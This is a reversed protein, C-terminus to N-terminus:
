MGNEKGHENEEKMKQKARFFTVRAWNPTKGLVEAIEIFSLSGMTRLYVVERSPEDLKQMSKFLKMKEENQLILEETTPQTAFNESLEDM